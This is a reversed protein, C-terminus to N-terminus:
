KRRQSTEDNRPRHAADFGSDRSELDPAVAGHRFSSRSTALMVPECSTFTWGHFRDDDGARRGADAPSGCLQQEIATKTDEAADAILGVGVAELSLEAGIERRQQEVDGVLRRHQRRRALHAVSQAALRQRAEDVIGTDANAARHEFNGGVVEAALHVDVDDTRDDRGLREARQEAGVRRQLPRLPPDHHDGRDGPFGAIRQRRGVRRRLVRDLPKGFAQAALHHQEADVDDDDRRTRHLRRDPALGVLDVEGGVRRETRRQVLDALEGPMEAFDSQRRLLDGLPDELCQRQGTWFHAILDRRVRYPM